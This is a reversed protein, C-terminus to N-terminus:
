GSAVRFLRRSQNWAGAVTRRAMRLARQHRKSERRWPHLPLDALDSLVQRRIRSIEEYVDDVGVRGDSV